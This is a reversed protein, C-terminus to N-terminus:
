LEGFIHYLFFIKYYIEEFLNAVYTVSKKKAKNIIELQKRLNSINQQIKYPVMAKELAPNKSKFLSYKALTILAHNQYIVLAKELNENECNKQIESITEYLSRFNKPSQYLMLAKDNKSHQPVKEIIGNLFEFISVTEGTKLSRFFLPLITLIISIILIDIFAILIKNFATQMIDDGEKQNKLKELEVGKGIITKPQEIKENIFLFISGLLSFIILAYLLYNYEAIFGGSTGLVTKLLTSKTSTKYTVNFNNSINSTGVIQIGSKLREFTKLNGGVKNILHQNLFKETAAKNALKKAEEKIVDDTVFNLILSRFRPNRPLLPYLDVLIRSTKKRIKKTAEKVVPLVVPKAAEVSQETYQRAQRRLERANVPQIALFFGSISISLCYFSIKRINTFWNLIIEWSKNFKKEVEDLKKQRAEYESVPIWIKTELGEHEVTYEIYDIINNEIDM